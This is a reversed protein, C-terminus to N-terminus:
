EGGDRGKAARRRGLRNVVESSAHTKPDGSIITEIGLARSTELEPVTEVTYDTGKAHVAPHLRRLIGSVNRASFILVADVGRIQAVVKARDGARMIPRGEGKLLRTSQDDNIAVVLFDGAERADRLYRVHGVHLPDFCGNALVVRRSGSEAIWAALRRTSRFVPAARKM